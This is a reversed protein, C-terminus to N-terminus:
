FIGNKTPSFFILLLQNFILSEFWLFLISYIRYIKIPKLCTPNSGIIKFTKEKKENEHM